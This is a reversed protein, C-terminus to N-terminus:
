IGIKQEIAKVTDSYKGLTKDGNNYDILMLRLVKQIEGKYKSKYLQHIYSHNYSELSICNDYDYTLDEEELVEIIHHVTNAELIKGQVYLSWLCINDYDKLINSRLKRWQKTNYLADDKRDKNRKPKIPCIHNKDVIRSCHICTTKKINIVKKIKFLRKSNVLCRKLIM